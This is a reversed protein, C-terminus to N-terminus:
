WRPDFDNESRYAFNRVNHITIKDGNITAYPLNGVEPQWDRDNSGPLRLFLGVLVAFAVVAVIATRGRRRLFLFALVIVRAYSGAALPRWKEPLIPSYYLAGVAWISIAIVIIVVVIRGATKIAKMFSDKIGSRESM